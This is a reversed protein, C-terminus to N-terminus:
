HLFIASLFGIKLYFRPFNPLKRLSFSKSCSKLLYGYRFCKLCVILYVILESLMKSDDFDLLDVYNINFKKDKWLKYPTKKLILRILARNLIYCATNIVEAWFYRPLHCECLMTQEIEKLTRNKREAIGNQQPMRPASFNHSIGHDSYFKDFQSNEFKTGHDSRIAVITTNKENTVKKYFKQFITFAEDKHALFM